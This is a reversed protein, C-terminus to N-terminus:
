KEIRRFEIVWVWPNSDWSYGRKANISDWLKAFWQDAKMAWTITGEFPKCYGEAYWNQKNNRIDWLREVRIDTIELLIRSAWRPMFIAPSWITKDSDGIRDYPVINPEPETARYHPILNYHGEIDDGEIKIPRDKAWQELEAPTSGYEYDSEICFTERGWLRDGIQGYPCQALLDPNNTWKKIVRRAQTKRGDLIARVMETSFIIPREKM